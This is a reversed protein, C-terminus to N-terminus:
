EDVVKANLELKSRLYETTIGLDLYDPIEDLYRELGRAELFEADSLSNHAALERYRDFKQRLEDSLSDVGFYGEVISEYTNGSLGNAARTRNELDYVVAESLSSLVFPSHTSVIFQVNPFLDILIPLVRKQLSLHLHNEIEDVLAIGPMTFDPSRGNRKVMRLMLGVVVDLIASFGDSAENFNYPDRGQERISFEYTEEDFELTLTPDEYINRLIDRVRDFWRQIERAKEQRGGTAALAQTMKLDLLYKVFLDRPSDDIGYRDAFTVKEIQRPIAADFQRKARFYAFLCSGEEYQARVDTDDTNFELDVGHRAGQLRARFSQLTSEDQRIREKNAEPNRRYHELREECGDIERQLKSPCQNHCVSDIYGAVADLVSTKGSGNKGTLMLHRPADDNSAALPIDINKLHRVHEIRLHRILVRDM